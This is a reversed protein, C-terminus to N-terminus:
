GRGTLVMPRPLAQGPHDVVGVVTVSGAYFGVAWPAYQSTATNAPLGLSVARGGSVRLGYGDGASDTSSGVAVIGGPAAAAGTLPGSGVPTAVRAWRRGNWHEVLAQSGRAGPARYAGVAWVDDRGHATIGLLDGSAASATGGFTSGRQATWGHGDYHLALPVNGDGQAVTGVAWVDDAGVATVSNLLWDTGIRPLAVRQWARGNWHAVLGEEHSSPRTGPKAPDSIQDWGAAWANSGNVASVSLLGGGLAASPLALQQASWTRGNWHETSVGGERAGTSSTACDGVMWGDRDSVAAVANM